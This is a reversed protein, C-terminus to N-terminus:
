RSVEVNCLARCGPAPKITVEQQGAAPAHVAFSMRSEANDEALAELEKGHLLPFITAIPHFEHDPM